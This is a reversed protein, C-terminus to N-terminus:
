VLIQVEFQLLYPHTPNSSPHWVVLTIFSYLSIWFASLLAILYSHLNFLSHVLSYSSFLHGPFLSHFYFQFELSMQAPAPVSLSFTLFVLPCTPAPLPLNALPCTLSSIDKPKKAFKASFWLVSMQVFILTYELEKLSRLNPVSGVTSEPHNWLKCTQKKKKKAIKLSSFLELIYGM